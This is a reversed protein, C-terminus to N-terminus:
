QGEWAAARPSPTARETVEVRPLLKEFADPSSLGSGVHTIAEAALATALRARDALPAHRLQASVIGAVMADGAGVTSKVEVHPPRATVIVSDALFVAGRSGMSVAILTIGRAQLPRVAAVIAEEDNTVLPSGVLAELEHVNPKIADPTAEDLALRLAEGSTDLLVKRGRAKLTQVLTRYFSPELNPPLSGSLVFWEADLQELTQLLAAVDASSPPQGPFNIDTTQQLVPDSVKIGVRTPGSIRVFRDVIRKRAFLEEFPASNDRGLFGTVAVSHGVDALISAVNVGKGGPDARSDEVRNVSGAAFNSITVTQDIAANLTVTAVDTM